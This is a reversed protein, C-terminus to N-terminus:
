PGSAGRGIAEEIDELTVGQVTPEFTECLSLLDARVPELEVVGDGRVRFSLRDGRRLGLRERVAVPITIQGKSTLTATEM